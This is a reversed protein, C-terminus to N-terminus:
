LGQNEFLIVKDAALRITITKPENGWTCSKFALLSECQDPEGLLATVENYGMGMKLKDYNEKNVKSCSSLSFLAIALITVFWPRIKNAAKMKIKECNFFVRQLPNPM